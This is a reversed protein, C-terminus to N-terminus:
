AAWRTAVQERVEDFPRERSPTVENVDYWVYGGNQPLQVPDNDTGPRSAFAGNLVEAPRPHHHDRCLPDRVPATSM